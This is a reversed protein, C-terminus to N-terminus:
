NGYRIILLEVVFHLPELASNVLELGGWLFTDGIELGDIPLSVRVIVRLTVNTVKLTM